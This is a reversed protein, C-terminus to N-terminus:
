KSIKEYLLFDQDRGNERLIFSGFCGEVGNQDQNKAMEDM